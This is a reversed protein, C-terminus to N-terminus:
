SSFSKRLAKNLDEKLDDLAEVGVSLRVFNDTIGLQQRQIPSLSAHTMLAPHEILSEVGGLSEALTFLECYNLFKKTEELNGKLFISIMGGFAKMQAKALAHQPHGALGPYIVKEILPHSELWNALDFANESHRQMRLSLTKLGRLVLFSDFPSAIGGCSNQLFAIKEALELSPGVVVVGSIVDSHGNLYKTASHVVIDFGYDLPRQIWPSAFTNDAVAILRHKKAFAALLNLDILKLLPNSPTEVWIMKTEPRILAELAAPNQMDAFTFSLGATKTKVKDFLRYSGGYIDDSVLIHDGPTLLDIVTNVAAMGSAFAFGRAGNELDAMCLEYAQRTPNQTRSYEFGQHQGPSQQRYTSTAYIPTMVAGTSPDAQQGAHIVRTDFAQGKM